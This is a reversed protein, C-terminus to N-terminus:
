SSMLNRADSLSVVNVNLREFRKFYWSSGSEGNVIVRKIIQDSLEGRVFDNFHKARYVNTLWVRKNELVIEGRQQNIIEAYAQIKNEKNGHQYVQYVNDLFIEVINTSFFDYFNRHQEFNISYYTLPPRRLINLPLDSIRPNVSRGGTQLYHFLFMHKKKNGVSDFTIRCIGCTKDLTDPEFLNQFHADDERVFHYNIYHRKLVTERLFHLSCLLCKM